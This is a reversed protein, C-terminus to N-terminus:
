MAKSVIQITYTEDELKTSLKHAEGNKTIWPMLLLNDANKAATYITVGKIEDDKLDTKVANPYIFKSLLSNLITNKLGTVKQLKWGINQM